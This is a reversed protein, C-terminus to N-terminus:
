GDLVTELSLYAMARALAEPNPEARRWVEELAEDRLVEWLERAAARASAWTLTSSFSGYILAIVRKVM